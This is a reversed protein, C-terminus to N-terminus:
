PNTGPDMTSGLPFRATTHGCVRLDPQCLLERVAQSWQLTFAKSLLRLSHDPRRATESQSITHTERVTHLVADFDMATVCFVDIDDPVSEIM